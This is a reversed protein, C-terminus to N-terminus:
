VNGDRANGEKSLSARVKAEMQNLLGVTEPSTVRQWEHDPEVLRVSWHKDSRQYTGILTLKDEGQYCYFVMQIPNFLWLKGKDGTGDMVLLPKEGKRVIIKRNM